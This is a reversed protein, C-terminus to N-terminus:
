KPDYSHRAWSTRRRNKKPSINSFAVPTERSRAIDSVVQVEDLIQTSLYFNITTNQNLKLTKKEEKYGVYSVRLVVEGKPLVLEFYGELDSVTGSGNSAIINAGILTESSVDDYIYGKVVVQASLHANILFAVILILDRM